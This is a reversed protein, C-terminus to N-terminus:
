CPFVLTLTISMMVMLQLCSWCQSDFVLMFVLSSPLLSILGLVTAGFIDDSNSCERTRISTSLHAQITRAHDRNSHRDSTFLFAQVRLTFENLRTRWRFVRLLLRLQGRLLFLIALWVLNDLILLLLFPLSRYLFCVVSCSRFSCM